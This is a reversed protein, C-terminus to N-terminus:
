IQYLDPRRDSLTRVSGSTHLRQLLHVDLETYFATPCNVTAQQVIGGTPFFHDAPAFVASRAYQFEVLPLQPMNGVLGATVVYCENEVARAQACFRVRNCGHVTDTQYPVFLIRAGQLALKRAAEPFEVDYCILLGVPGCDTEFVGLQDGAKMEWYHEFPTLHTKEYADCRGDRHCLYSVNYLHGDRLLPMSGAIINVQYTEAWRQFAVRLKETFGAVYELMQRDSGHSAKSALCLSFYEPFLVFDPKYVNLARIYAEAEHCFDDFHPFARAEWQVVGTRIYTQM